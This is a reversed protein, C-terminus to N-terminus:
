VAVVWKDSRWEYALQRGAHTTLLLREDGMKVSQWVESEPNEAETGFQHLLMARQQLRQRAWAELVDTLSGALGAWSEAEATNLIACALEQALTRRKNEATSANFTVMVNPKWNMSRADRYACLLIRKDRHCSVQAEMDDMVYQIKLKM